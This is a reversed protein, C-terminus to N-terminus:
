RKMFLHHVAHLGVSLSHALPLRKCVPKCYMYITINHQFLTKTYCVTANAAVELFDLLVVHTIAVMHAVLTDTSTIKTMVM